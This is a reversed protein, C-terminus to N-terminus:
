KPWQKGFVILWNAGADDYINQSMSSTVNQICTDIFMTYLIPMPKSLHLLM